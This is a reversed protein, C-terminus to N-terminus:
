RPTRDSIHAASRAGAAVLVGLVLECCLSLYVRAVPRFLVALRDQHKQAAREQTPRTDYGGITWGVARKLAELKPRDASVQLGRFKASESTLTKVSVKVSDSEQAEAIEVEISVSECDHKFPLDAPPLSRMAMSDQLKGCAPATLRSNCCLRLVSRTQRIRKKLQLMELQFM